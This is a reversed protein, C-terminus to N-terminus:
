YSIVKGEDYVQTGFMNPHYRCYDILFSFFYLDSSSTLTHALFPPMLLGCAERKVLTVELTPSAAEKPITHGCSSETRQKERQPISEPCIYFSIVKGLFFPSLGKLAETEGYDLYISIWTKTNREM